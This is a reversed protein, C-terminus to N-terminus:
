GKGDAEFGFYKWVIAKTNKKSILVEETEEVSPEEIDEDSIDTIELVM